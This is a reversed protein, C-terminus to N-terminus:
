CGHIADNVSQQSADVPELNVVIPEQDNRMVIWVSPADGANSEMHPVFPPVYVFDGAGAEEEFELQDGWRM